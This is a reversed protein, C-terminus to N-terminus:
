DNNKKSEAERFEAAEAWGRTLGVREATEMNVSGDANFLGNAILRNRLESPMDDRLKSDASEPMYYVNPQIVQHDKFARRVGNVTYYFEVNRSSKVLIEDLGARVVAYTAMDGIPTIQVSLSEPDTVEKFHEPVAIRALGRSFRGKGRFYTGAEPGELSVYNIVKTPDSAMPEVFSKTGNIASFNGDVLVAGNFTAARTTCLQFMFTFCSRYGLLASAAVTAANNNMLYFGGAANTLDVSHSEAAGIVGFETGADEGRVGASSLNATDLIANGPGIGVVGASDPTISDTEGGVGYGEGTAANHLGWVAFALGTANQTARIGDAGAATSSNVVQMLAAADNGNLDFLTGPNLSDSFYGNIDIVLHASQGAAMNLKVSIQSTGLSVITGNGLAVTGAPWNLVSVLPEAGGTNWAVLNGDATPSVITFQFSVAEAGVPVSNAACGNPPAPVTAPAGTIQFARPINALLPGPGAQGAFGNGRTDAIRCPAIAVFPIADSIDTMTRIGGSAQSPSWTPPVSWNPIANAEPVRAQASLAGAVLLIALSVGFVRSVPRM